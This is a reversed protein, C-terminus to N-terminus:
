EPFLLKTPGSAKVNLGWNKYSYVKFIIRLRLRGQRRVKQQLKVRKEFVPPEFWKTGPAWSAVTAADTQTIEPCKLWPQARISDPRAARTQDGVAYRFDYQLQEPVTLRNTPRNSWFVTRSPLGGAM